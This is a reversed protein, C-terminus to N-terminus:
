ILQLLVASALGATEARLRTQGLAIPQLGHTKLYGVEADSFDAEPGIVVYDASAPLLTGPSQHTADPPIYGFAGRKGDLSTIADALTPMQVQQCLWAQQSQKLASVAVRQMRALNLSGKKCREMETWIIQALGLEQCKEVLWEMRDPHQLRPMILYRPRQRGVEAMPGITVTVQQKGIAHITASATIGQGNTLMCGDGTALRLASVAHRAEEEALTNGSLDPHYFWPIEKRAM